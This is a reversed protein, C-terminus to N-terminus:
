VRRAGFLGLSLATDNVGVVPTADVLMEWPKTVFAHKEEKDDVAGGAEQESVAYLWGNEWDNSGLLFRITPHNSVKPGLGTSLSASLQQKTNSSLDILTTIDALYGGLLFCLM